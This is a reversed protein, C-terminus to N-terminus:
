HPTLFTRPVNPMLWEYSLLGPMDAHSDTNNFIVDRVLWVRRIELLMRVGPILDFLLELPYLRCRRKVKTLNDEIDIVSDRWGARNQLASRPVGVSISDKFSGEKVKSAM